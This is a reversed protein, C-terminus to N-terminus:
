PKPLVLRISPAGPAVTVNAWDSYVAKGNAPEISANLTLKLGEYVKFSFNAGNMNAAYVVSDKEVLYGVRAGVAPKGDSWVVNGAVEFELPLPPMELNHDVIVQGRGISFIKAQSRDIVGPYFMAPFPRNQSTMGDFRIGLVYRGPPIRKFEYRGEEDSYAYDVYGRYYEKDFEM